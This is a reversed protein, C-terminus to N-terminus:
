NCETSINDYHFVNWQPIRNLLFRSPNSSCLLMTQFAEFLFSLVILKKKKLASTQKLAWASPTQNFHHHSIQSLPVCTLRQPMEQMKYLKQNCRKIADQVVEPRGLMDYNLVTHKLDCLNLLKYRTHQKGNCISWFNAQCECFQGLPQRKFADGMRKKEGWCTSKM